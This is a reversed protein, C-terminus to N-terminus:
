EIVLKETDIRGNRNIQIIYIGSDLSSTNFNISDNQVERALQVEKGTNDYITIIATALNEAEVTFLSKAPNPYLEIDFKGNIEDYSLPFDVTFNFDINDGFDGTFQKVQGLGPSFLYTYGNGDNNAWWSIGDDGSDSVHYNYCGLGLELTDRYLTNGSLGSRSLLVTGIDDTVQYSTENPANNTKFFIIITSPMVETIEFPSIFHDNYSYGDAGGNPSTIKAHFKNDSVTIPSWLTVPTPLEVVESEGFELSGSWNFTEPSPSDNVWFEIIASTLLTSGTNKIVVKPKNCISNFRSYEIKNSPEQIEIIAADLTQNIAGYTVLQNNVIYRSDGSAVQVDYDVTATQGATVYSTIDSYRIDTASGPCWGARDYVWTGGQPYIPNDGCEKWVLWSFENAGGNVNIFHNRPIFEGQQGHGTISSRVFFSEGLPNLSVDRPAFYRDNNINAFAVSQNRWIQNISLVDRPPTGVIFLFRIDMDEQWQGGREVTIQKQGNFVPTFDTMDFTWTEGDIGLNLNIGYPTVFSMLEFKSPWRRFYDLDSPTPATAETSVPITSLIAGTTADYINQPIAEWVQLSSTEIIDDDLLTNANSNVAYETITKPMIQISDIVDIASITIDYSGQLFTISPRFASNQFFRTLDIGRTLQWLYPSPSVANGGNIEEQLNVGTGDDLKYYAVLNSYQPHSATVNINMWDSVENQTLEKNWIRIEDIQGLYNYSGSNTAGIVLETLEMLNTMSTGTHWLTGNLYVNMIGTTTNKTASWHNWAGELEGVAAAKDIRDYGSGLWGCDFYVRSNSWPLHLNLSRNGNSNNAHIITTNAPLADADGKAWFSVTLEDSITALSATTIDIIPNGALNASYGNNTFLSQDTSATGEIQIDNGSITNTFSFEIILNDSGNWIFPTSFQIRNAGNIFNFDNYFVETYGSNEPSNAILTNAITGKINVRFFNIYGSNLANIMLGDIEGATFGASTLETATYLYQSKGSQNSGDLVNNTPTTGSLITYQTESLISNLTIENQSYQYFDYTPQSTYNFTTGSFNSVILDPHTYLVSDIQTSDHLYTNCSYDWEGCGFNTNGGTSINADKCRMSYEMIIKEFSLGDLSSFDIVTDRTTSNYDFSQIVITDGVTQAHNIVTFMLAALLLLTRTKM